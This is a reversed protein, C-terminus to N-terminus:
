ERKAPSDKSVEKATAPDAKSASADKSNDTGAQAPRPTRARSLSSNGMELDDEDEDEANLDVPQPTYNVRAAEPSPGLALRAMPDIFDADDGGGGYVDTQSAGDTSPQASSWPDYTTGNQAQQNHTDYSTSSYTSSPAFPAAQGWSSQAFSPSTSRSDPYATSQGYMTPFDVTSAARTVQGSAGPSITSFHSFPGVPGQADKQNLRSKAPSMTIHSSHSDDEGAIFKTLRGEIWSGLKDVSTKNKRGSILLNAPSASPTGTLREILDELSALLTESLLSSGNKVSKLAAEIASCYRFLLSDPNVSLQSPESKHKILMGLNQQGGHENCNIRCCNHCDQLLLRRGRPSLYCAERM